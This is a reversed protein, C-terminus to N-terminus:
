KLDRAIMVYDKAISGLHSDVEDNCSEDNSLNDQDRTQEISEIKTRDRYGRLKSPHVLPQSAIRVIRRAVVKGENESPYTGHTKYHNMLWKIHYEAAKSWIQKGVLRRLNFQISFALIEYGSRGERKLKDCERIIHKARLYLSPYILQLYRVLVKAFQCFYAKHQRCVTVTTVYGPMITILPKPVDDNELQVDDEVEASIIIETPVPTSDEIDDELNGKSTYDHDNSEPNSRKDEKDVVLSERQLDESFYAEDNISYIKMQETIDDIELNVEKMSMITRSNDKAKTTQFIIISSIIERVTLHVLPRPLFLDHKMTSSSVHYKLSTSSGHITTTM